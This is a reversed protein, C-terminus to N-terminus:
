FKPIVAKRKQEKAEDRAKIFAAAAPAEFTMQIRSSDMLAFNGNSNIFSNAYIMPAMIIEGLNKAPPAKKSWKGGGAEGTLIAIMEDDQIQPKVDKGGLKFYVIRVAKGDVFACKILWGQYKYAHCVAGDIMPMEKMMFEMDKSPEGYRQKSQEETEGLRASVPLGACCTLLLGFFLGQVIGTKM